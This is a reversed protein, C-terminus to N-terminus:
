LSSLFTEVDQWVKEWNYNSNEIVISQIPLSKIIDLEIQKREEFTQIAGDFGKRNHLQGYPTNESYAIIMDVWRGDTFIREKAVREITERVNPQSLYVLVPSLMEVGSLLINLHNQIAVKNSLKFNMLENVNNQLFTCEFINLVDKEAALKGFIRWRNYLLNNFVDSTVRNDYIEYNELEKYFGKDTTKVQMYAIIAYDGEVHMNERIDSEINHYKLLLRDLSDLPVCASWALDAPHAQGENYLNVSVNKNRYYKAIEQAITSKGSGPIGEVMILRTNM